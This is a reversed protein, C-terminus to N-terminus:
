RLTSPPLTMAKETCPARVSPILDSYGSCNGARDGGEDALIRAGIAEASAALFNEFPRNTAKSTVDDVNGLDGDTWFDMTAWTCRSGDGFRTKLIWDLGM